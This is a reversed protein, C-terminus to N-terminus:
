LHEVETLSPNFIMTDAAIAIGLVQIVNNTGSPATQTLTNGSTGTVSLYILGGVTWSPSSALKVVGHVIYTNAVSGSVIGASIVIASANAIADAKALHAKGNVDIQCADGVIQSETSTLPIKVGSTTTASLTLSPASSGWNTGDSTVVNGSTGPAVDPVNHSDKLAKATVFKADDTGTDVEAGSAKVPLISTQLNAITIKDTVGSKVVPIVDSGGTSTIAPLQSIKLDAM